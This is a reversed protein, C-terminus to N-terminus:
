HHVGTIGASLPSFCSSWSKSALRPYKLLGQGSPYPSLFYSFLGTCRHKYFMCNEPQQSEEPNLIELELAGRTFHSVSVLSDHSAWPDALGTCAAGSCCLSTKGLYFTTRQGGCTNQAKYRDDECGSSVCVCCLVCFIFLIDNGSKVKKVNIKKM